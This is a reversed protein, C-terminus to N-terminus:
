SLAALAPTKWGIGSKSRRRLLREGHVLDRAQQEDKAGERAVEDAAREVTVDAFGACPEERGVPTLSQRVSQKKTPVHGGMGAVFYRLFVSMPPWTQVFNVLLAVRKRERAQWAVGRCM